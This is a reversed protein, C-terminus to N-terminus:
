INPISRVSNEDLFYKTSVSDRDVVFQTLYLLADIEPAPTATKRWMEILLAGEVDISPNITASGKNFREDMSLGLAHLLDTVVDGSHLTLKSFVRAPFEAEPICCEWRKLTRYYNRVPNRIFLFAALKELITRPQAIAHVGRAEGEGMKIWQLHSSQIIEAQERLYILVRIPFSPLGNVLRRIQSSNFRAMGEWSLLAVRYGQTSAKQLEAALVDLESPDLASM